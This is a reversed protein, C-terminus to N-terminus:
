LNFPVSAGSITAGNLTGGSLDNVIGAVIAGSLDSVLGGSLDGFPGVGGSSDGFPGNGGSFDSFNGGPSLPGGGGAGGYSPLALPLTCQGGSGSGSGSGSSAWPNGTGTPNTTDVDGPSIQMFNHQSYIMNDATYAWLIRVTLYVGGVVFTLSLCIIYLYKPILDQYYLLSLMCAHICFAVLCKLIYTRDTYMEGYYDNIEILRLKNIQEQHTINYLEKARNLEHEVIKLAKTQDEFVQKAMAANSYNGLIELYLSKYLASRADMITRIDQRVKEDPNSGEDDVLKKMLGNEKKLLFEIEGIIKDGPESM